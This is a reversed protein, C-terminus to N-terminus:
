SYEDHLLMELVLKSLGQKHLCWFLPSDADDNSSSNSTTVEDLSLCKIGAIITAFDYTLLLRQLITDCTTVNNMTRNLAARILLCVVDIKTECRKRRFGNQMSRSSSKTTIGHGYDFISLQSLRPSILAIDVMTQIRTNNQGLYLRHIGLGDATEITDMGDHIVTTAETAATGDVVKTEINNNTKVMSDNKTPVIGIVSSGGGASDATSTAQLCRSSLQQMSIDTLQNESVDLTHIRTICSLLSSFDADNLQVGRLILATLVCYKPTLLSHYLQNFAASGGVHPCYSLDLRVVTSLPPLVKSLELACKDDLESNHSLDLTHLSSVSQLNQFVNLIHQNNPADHLEAFVVNSSHTTTTITNATLLLVQKHSSLSGYKKNVKKAQRVQRNKKKQKKRTPHM